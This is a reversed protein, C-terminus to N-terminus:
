AAFKHKRWRDTGSPPRRDGLCEFQHLAGVFAVVARFQVTEVTFQQQQTPGMRSRRLRAKVLGQAHRAFLARLGKFEASRDAESAEPKVFSLRPLSTGQEFVSVRREFILTWSASLSSARVSSAASWVRLDSRSEWQIQFKNAFLRAVSRQRFAPTSPQFAIQCPAQVGPRLTVALLLVKLGCCARTTRSIVWILFFSLALVQLLGDWRAVRGTKLRLPRRKECTWALRQETM